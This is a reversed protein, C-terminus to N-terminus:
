PLDHPELGRTRASHLREASHQPHLSQTVYTVYKGFQRQLFGGSLAAKQTVIDTHRYEIEKKIGQVSKATMSKSMLDHSTRSDAAVVKELISTRLPPLIGGGDGRAHQLLPHQQSYPSDRFLETPSHGWLLLYIGIIYRAYAARSARTRAGRKTAACVPSTGGSAAPAEYQGFRVILMCRHRIPFPAGGSVACRQASM